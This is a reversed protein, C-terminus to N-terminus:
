ASRTRQDIDLSRREFQGPVISEPRYPCPVFVRRTGSFEDYAFAFVQLRAETGLGLLSELSASGGQLREAVDPRALAQLTESWNKEELRLRVTESLGRRELPSMRPVRENELPIPFIEWNHPFGERLGRVMLHALIEVDIAARKGVNTAKFRYMYGCRFESAPWKSINTSFALQPVIWRSVLLWAFLSALAGVPLGLLFLVVDRSM